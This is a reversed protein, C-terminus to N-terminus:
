VRWKWGNKAAGWAVVWVLRGLSLAIVIQAVWGAIQHTVGLVLAALIVSLYYILAVLMQRMELDTLNTKM